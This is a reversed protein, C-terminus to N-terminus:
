FYKKSTLYNKIYDEIGNELETFSKSYGARRLKGLTAETFYQYKDRIDAPTDIFEINVPINLANFTGKALDLFTRARGTGLNYIGSDAKLQM